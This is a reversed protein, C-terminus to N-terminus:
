HVCGRIFSARPDQKKVLDMTEVLGLLVKKKWIDLASLEHQDPRSGLVWTELHDRRKERAHPNEHEIFEGVGIDGRDDIPGSKLKIILRLFPQDLHSITIGSLRDCHDLVCAM